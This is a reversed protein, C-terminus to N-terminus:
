FEWINNAFRCFIYKGEAMLLARNHSFLKEGFCINKAEKQYEWNNECNQTKLESGKDVVVVLTIQLRHDLM